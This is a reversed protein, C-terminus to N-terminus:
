TDVNALNIIFNDGNSPYYYIKHERFRYINLNAIFIMCTKRLFLSVSVIKISIM